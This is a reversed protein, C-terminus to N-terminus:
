HVIYSTYNKATRLCRLKDQYNRLIRMIKLGIVACYDFATSPKYNQELLWNEFNKLM